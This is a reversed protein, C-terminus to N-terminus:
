VGTKLESPDCKQIITQTIAARIINSKVGELEPNVKRVKILWDSILQSSEPTPRFSVVKDLKELFSAEIIADICLDIEMALFYHIADNIWKSKGRLGYGESIMREHVMKELGSSIKFSTTKYHTTM